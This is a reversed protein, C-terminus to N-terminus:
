SSWGKTEGAPGSYRQSHILFRWSGNKHRIRYELREGRGTNRTKEAAGFVRARDDPHIQEM